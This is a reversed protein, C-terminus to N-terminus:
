SGVIQETQNRFVALVCRTTAEQKTILDPASVVWGM